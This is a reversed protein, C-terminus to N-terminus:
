KWVMERSTSKEEMSSQVVMPPAEVKNKIQALIKGKGTGAPIVVARDLAYNYVGVCVWM